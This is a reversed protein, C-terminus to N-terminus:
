NNNDDNVFNCCHPDPRIIVCCCFAATSPQSKQQKHQHTPPTQTCHPLYNPKNACGVCGIRRCHRSSRGRAIIAFVCMCVYYVATRQFHLRLIMTGECLGNATRLPELLVHKLPNDCNSQVSSACLACPSQLRKNTGRWRTRLSPAADCACLWADAAAAAATALQVQTEMGTRMNCVNQNRTRICYGHKAECHTNSVHANM